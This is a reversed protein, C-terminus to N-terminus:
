LPYVHVDHPSSASHQAHGSADEFPHLPEVNKLAHNGWMTHLPSVGLKAHEFEHAARAIERLHGFETVFDFLHGTLAAVAVIPPSIVTYAIKGATKWGSDSRKPEMIVAKLFRESYSKATDTM